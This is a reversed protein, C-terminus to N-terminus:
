QSPEKTNKNWLDAQTAYWGRWAKVEAIATNFAAANTVDNRALDSLVLGSDAGLSGGPGPPVPDVGAGAADRLRVYGAPIVCRRDAEPTVYIPVKQQLKATLDNIRILDTAHRDRAAASIAASAKSVKVARETAAAVLKANAARERDVGASVGGQYILVVALLAVGIWCLWQGFPSKLFAWIKGLLIIM